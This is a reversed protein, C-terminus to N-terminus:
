ILKFEAKFVVFVFTIKRSFPFLVIVKILFFFHIQFSAGEQM